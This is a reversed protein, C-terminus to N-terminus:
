PEPWCDTPTTNHRSDHCRCQRNFEGGQRRDCYTSIEYVGPPAATFTAIAESVNLNVTTGSVQKWAFTIPDKDPDFSSSGDLTVTGGRDCEITQDPGAKAVPPKNERITVLYAAGSGGVEAPAGVLLDLGKDGGLDRTASLAHGFSKNGVPPDPVQLLQTGSSNMLYARNADPAAIFFDNKGDGDYDSVTAAAFGFSDNLQRSATAGLFSGDAGSFLFAKSAKSDGVLYDDRGDGNQDTVNTVSVGFRDDTGVQPVSHSRIQTGDGGSLIYAAGALKGSGDDHFPAGVVLDAKGDSNIDRLSALTAGFSAIPQKSSAGAGSETAKWIQSGDAGSLAYVGVFNTLVPAGIALDPKGDSNVDGLLAIAFGFQLTEEPPTFKKIMTGTAGSIVFVRGWQPDPKCPPQLCPLPVVGPAGPASAAFDEMGDGDWDGIGVVSFGFQDGLLGDPDAIARLVSQDKGSIVFLKDIGPAGVVLDGIGDGNVDGIGAVSTGFGANAAASPNGIRTVDSVLVNAAQTPTPLLLFFVASLCFSVLRLM